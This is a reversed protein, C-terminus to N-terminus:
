LNRFSRKSTCTAATSRAKRSVARRSRKRSTWATTPSTRSLSRTRRRRTSAAWSGSASASTARRCSRRFSPTSRGSARRSSTPIIRRRSHLARWSEAAHFRDGTAGRRQRVLQVPESHAVRHQRRSRHGLPLDHRGGTSSTLGAFQSPKVSCAAKAPDILRARAAAHEKGLMSPVPIKSFGPDAVYPDHRRLRAEEGRDDRPAGERQPIWVRGASVAGDPQADDAGRNGAHEAAARSGDLRSLDDFDARGMRAHVRKLDDATM